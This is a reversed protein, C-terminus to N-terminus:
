VREGFAAAFVDASKKKRCVDCLIDGPAQDNEPAAADGQELAAKELAWLYEEKTAFATGCSSCHILKFKRGWITRQGKSEICEIAKTPCVAACSGCGICDVSPEDYPTSIKKAVGREVTSIASTGLSSCAKVCLGCLVCASALQKEAPSPIKKSRGSSGKAANPPTFRKEESVGYIQCLSALRDGSPARTKLMSLITRRIKKITESETFVECDRNIPYICSVVVQLNKGEKVEVVCLRCAGLGPIGDHHCLTPVLIRNRRCVDLIFEGKEAEYTKGNIKVKLM